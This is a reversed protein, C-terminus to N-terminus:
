LDKDYITKEGQIISMASEVSIDLTLENSSILTDLQKRVDAYLVEKSTYDGTFTHAVGATQIADEYMKTWLRAVASYEKLSKSM